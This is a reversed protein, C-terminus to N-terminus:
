ESRLAIIPDVRSARLAPVVCALVSASALIVLGGSYVVPQIVGVESLVSRLVQSLGLAVLMGAAAGAAVLTMGDRTVMAVIEIPRAGLAMRIGIERTRLGIIYSMVAYLGLAALAVALAAFCAFLFTWLRSQWVAEVKLTDIPKIQVIAIQPEAERIAARIREIYDAPDGRVVAVAQM